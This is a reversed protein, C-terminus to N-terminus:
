NDSHLMKQIMKDQVPTKLWQNRFAYLLLSLVLYFGGVAFFGYHVKGLVEGLYFAVGINFIVLMMLGLMGIIINSVLSSTVESTKNVAQLKMLDIRTEVYDGTKKFLSELSITKNDQEM